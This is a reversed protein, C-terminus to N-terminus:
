LKCGHLRKRGEVERGKWINPQLKLKEFQQKCSITLKVPLNLEITKVLVSFGIDCKEQSPTVKFHFFVVFPNCM